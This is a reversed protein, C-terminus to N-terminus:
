KGSFSPPRKELFAKRGEKFDQTSFAVAQMVSELELFSDLALPWHNLANKIMAYSQGPGKALRLALTKVEDNLKEAPVVRNVLGMREAENASVFDGLMMLEKAKPVGIRLPLSYFLGLDPVLGIKSFSVVFRAEKSAVLFDCSLALSVGAGAAVGNIAGIIPKELEMMAKILGHGRKLRRRGSVATEGEMTRLDGGACFAKGSGTLIIVKVAEDEAFKRFMEILGVRIELSLANHVEPLNLTIRAVGQDQELLLAKREM